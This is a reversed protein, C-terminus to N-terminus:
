RIRVRRRVDEAYQHSPTPCAASRQGGCVAHKSAESWHPRQAKRYRRGDTQPSPLPLSSCCILPGEGAENTTDPHRSWEVVELSSLGVRQQQCICGSQPSCTAAEEVLRTRNSELKARTDKRRTSVIQTNQIRRKYKQQPSRVRQGAMIRAKKPSLCHHDQDPHPAKQKAPL